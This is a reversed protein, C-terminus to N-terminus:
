VVGRSLSTIEVAGGPVVDICLRHEALLRMGILCEEGIASALVPRWAGAWEVEVAYHDFSRVSGDALTAGGSSVRALGLAIADGVPITLSSTFGSDVVADREVEAGSPGRLVLRVVAEGRANVAGRIM